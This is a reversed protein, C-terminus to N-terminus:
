MNPLLQVSRLYKHQRELVRSRIYQVSQNCQSNAMAKVPIPISDSCVSKNVFYVHSPPGDGRPHQKPIGPQTTVAPTCEPHM